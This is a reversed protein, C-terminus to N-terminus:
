EHREDIRNTALAEPPIRGLASRAAEQITPDPDNQFQLLLSKLQPQVLRTPGLCQLFIRVSSVNGAKAAIRLTEVVISPALDMGSLALASSFAIGKNSSCMGEVLISVIRDTNTGNRAIQGLCRMTSTVGQENRALSRPDSVWDLLPRIGADGIQSLAYAPPPWMDHPWHGGPNDADLMNALTAVANSASRGLIQFGFAADWRKQSIQLPRKRLANIARKAPSWSVQSDGVARSWAPPHKGIWKLLWPIANTGIQRVAEEAEVRDEETHIPRCYINMWQSLNKGRYVPEEENPWTIAVIAAIFAVIVVSLIPKRWKV